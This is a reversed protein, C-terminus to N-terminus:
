SNPSGPNQLTSQQPWQNNTLRAVEDRIRRLVRSRAVYITGITTDLVKAAQANDVDDVWTMWFAKWYLEKVTPRVNESAVAFVHRQFEIQFASESEVPSAALQDLFQIGSNDVASVEPRKNREFQRLMCNRSVRFLWARFSANESDPSWQSVVDTLRLLTNQCADAADTDNMGLRKAVSWIMPYYIAVFEEWAEFDRTDHLRLVLSIRTTPTTSTM